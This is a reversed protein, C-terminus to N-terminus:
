RDLRSSRRGMRQMDEYNKSISSAKSLGCTISIRKKKLERQLVQKSIGFHRFPWLRTRSFKTTTKLHLSLTLYLRILM